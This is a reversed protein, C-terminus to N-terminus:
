TTQYRKHQVTNNIHQKTIRQLTYRNSLIFCIVNRATNDFYKFGRQTIVHLTYFNYEVVLSVIHSTCNRYIM